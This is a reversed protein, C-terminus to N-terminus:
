VGSRRRSSDARRSEVTGTCAWDTVCPNKSSPELFGFLHAEESVRCVSVVEVDSGVRESELKAHAPGVSEKESRRLSEPAKVAERSTDPISM